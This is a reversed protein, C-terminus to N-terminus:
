RQVEELREADRLHKRHEVFSPPFLERDRMLEDIVKTAFIGPSISDYTGHNKPNHKEWIRSMAAAWSITLTPDSKDPEYGVFRCAQLYGGWWAPREENFFEQLSEGTKQVKSILGHRLKQDRTERSFRGVSRRVGDSTRKKKRGEESRGEQVPSLDTDRDTVARHCSVDRIFSPDTVPDFQVNRWDTTRDLNVSMWTPSTETVSQSVRLVYFKGIVVPYNGRQGRTRFRKIWAIEELRALSRQIARLTVDSPCLARVKEASALSVGTRHDATLCIFDHVAADLLSIRGEELHQLM